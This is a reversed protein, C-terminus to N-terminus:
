VFSIIIYFVAKICWLIFRFLYSSAVYLYYSITNAMDRQNTLAMKEILWNPKYSFYALVGALIIWVPFLPSLFLTGVAVLCGIGKLNDKNFTRKGREEIVTVLHQTRESNLIEKAKNRYYLISDYAQQSPIYAGGNGSEVLFKDSYSIYAESIYQRYEQDNPNISLHNQIMQEAADVNGTYFMYIIDLSLYYNNANDMQLAKDIYQKAQSYDNLTNLYISALNACFLPELPYKEIAKKFTDVALQVEDNEWYSLGLYNFLYPSDAGAGIMRNCYDATKRSNGAEYFTKANAIITEIEDNNISIPETASQQNQEYYQQETQQQGYAGGPKKQDKLIKLDYQDRKLKDSFVMAAEEILAIMQEAKQRKNLDNANQRHIWKKKEQFLADCIAEGTMNPDLNFEEYYNVM